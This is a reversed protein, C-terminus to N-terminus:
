LKMDRFINIIQKGCIPHIFDPAIQALPKMVFERSCMLPHPIILRPTNIIEGGFLLIDIDIPRDSYGSDSTSKVNRGLEREIGETIDLTQFPSLSTQVKVAANLYKNDSDYGWSATEIFHSLALIDGVREGILKVASRLFMERHGENSGLGLCVVNYSTDPLKM